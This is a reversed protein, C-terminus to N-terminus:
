NKHFITIISLTKKKIGALKFYNPDYGSRSSPFSTAPDSVFRQLNVVRFRNMNLNLSYQWTWLKLMLTTYGSGYKPAKQIRIRFVSGYGCMYIYCLIYVFSTFIYSIFECNLTLQTFIEAHSIKNKYNM